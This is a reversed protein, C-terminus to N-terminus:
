VMEGGLDQYVHPPSPLLDYVDIFCHISTVKIIVIIILIPSVLNSHLPGGKIMNKREKQSM